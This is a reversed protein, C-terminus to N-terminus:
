SEEEIRAFRVYVPVVGVRKGQIEELQEILRMADIIRRVTDFLGDDQGDGHVVLELYSTRRV